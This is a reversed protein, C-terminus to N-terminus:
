GERLKFRQIKGTATKPLSEAFEVWRPYKWPGAKAKVHEQLAPILGDPSAGPKLVVVARPKLLGDADERPVVAAELVAPHAVLASEVEFPSVWIGSVKFMDDTRGQYTYYGDADRVYKDGTRMWEGEFTRRSKDRQNWYGEAASPGSVIMEGVEGAAVERSEEDILRVRYGDVPKGSAGYRIDDPRNSVYIHLMETSGVGDLIDVGFRRRWAEGVEAPLAEGASVCARLRASSLDPGSGPHALMAAYLTPVGYFITPQHKRLTAFVAEPTPREALLITTAGVSLPFTMGNGLGYAFFLKAASFCVDDEHIGLVAQGYLRATEMLSTHIHRVGKPMGTSGSSYLWFATEDPSTAVTAFEPQQAALETALNCMRPPATGGSVFIREIFPLRDLIPEIMPLLSASVVLARARSDALIYRYQEATLLTNLAVPVIGAKVAGWFAVPFDRTDHLLLAIRMERPIGVATLLNAMRNCSAALEGYTFTGNADIFAAKEARGEHLHRDVLDTAANYSTEM